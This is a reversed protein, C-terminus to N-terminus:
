SRMFAASAFPPTRALAQQDRLDDLEVLAVRRAQRARRIFEGRKPRTSSAKPGPATATRSVGASSPSVVGGAEHLVKDVVRRIPRARQALSRSSSTDRGGHRAVARHAGPAAERRLFSRAAGRSPLWATSRGTCDHGGSRRRISARRCRAATQFATFRLSVAEYYKGPRASNQVLGELTTHTYEAGRPPNPMAAISSFSRSSRRVASSDARVM